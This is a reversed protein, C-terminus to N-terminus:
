KKITQLFGNVVDRLQPDIHAIKLLTSVKFPRVLKVFWKDIIDGALLKLADHAEKSDLIESVKDNVSFRDQMITGDTGFWNRIQSPAGDGLAYSQPLRDVGQLVVEDVCKGAVVKVVNDGVRVPVDDFVFVRDAKLTKQYGDATLTVEPLNSYVKVKTTGIVRCPYRKATIHVFEEDSWTAKYLFFADKKVKRDITVLGKNNRGRVGEKEFEWDGNINVKQM